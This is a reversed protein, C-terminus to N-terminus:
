FGGMDDPGNRWTDQRNPSAGEGVGSTSKAIEFYGLEVCQYTPLYFIAVALQWLGMLLTWGWVPLAATSLSGTTFAITGFGVTDMAEILTEQSLLSGYLLSPASALLTWGLYSLDLMFLQSKYGYTQRKSMNLAEFVSIGPNEYLNYLAFRYRYAAIIGPVVFLMSWLTIFFYMVINLGILKGVFSFGDFLTLFEAREGRRIARCYLVFGAGLVMGLLSTLITLFTSLLGSNGALTDVMSLVLSLGLYLVTMSRPSVQADALLDKMDQKLQKRDILSAMM